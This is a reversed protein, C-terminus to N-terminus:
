INYVCVCTQSSILVSGSGVEIICGLICYYTCGCVVSGLVEVVRTSRLSGLANAVGQWSERGYAMRGKRGRVWRGGVEAAMGGRDCGRVGGVM